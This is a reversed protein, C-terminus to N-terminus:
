QFWLEVTPISSHANTSPGLDVGHNHEHNEEARSTGGPAADALEPGDDLGKMNEVVPM